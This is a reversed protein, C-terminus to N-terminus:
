TTKSKRTRPKNPLALAKKKEKVFQAVGGTKRGLERAVRESAQGVKAGSRSDLFEHRWLLDLEAYGKALAKAGVPCHQKPRKAVATVLDDATKANLLDSVIVDLDALVVEPVEWGTERAVRYRELVFLRNKTYAWAAFAKEFESKSLQEVLGLEDPLDARLKLMAARTKKIDVRKTM